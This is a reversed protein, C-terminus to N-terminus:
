MGDLGLIARVRDSSGLLETQSRTVARHVPHNQDYRNLIETIRDVAMAPQGTPSTSLDILTLIDLSLRSPTPLRVWEALLGREEAESRAGTHHAVLAVVRDPAGLRQLARAGDVAHMGSDVLEDAYGIDHVWAASVLVDTVLDSQEALQEAAQGVAVTHSWRDGMGLVLDQALEKSQEVSWWM